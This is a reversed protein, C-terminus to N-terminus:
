KLEQLRAIMADIAESKSKGLIANNRGYVDIFEYKETCLVIDDIELPFIKDADIFEFFWVEDGVKFDSM